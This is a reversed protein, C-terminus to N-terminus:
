IAVPDAASQLSGTRQWGELPAFHGIPVRISGEGMACLGVRQSTTAILLETDPAPRQAGNEVASQRPVRLSRITLWGVSVLVTSSLELLALGETFAQSAGAVATQLFRGM